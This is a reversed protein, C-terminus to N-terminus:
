PIDSLVIYLTYSYISRYRYMRETHNKVKLCHNCIPFSFSVKIEHYKEELYYALSRAEEYKRSIDLYKEYHRKFLVFRFYFM